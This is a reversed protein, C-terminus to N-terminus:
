RTGGGASEASSILLGPPGDVHPHVIGNVVLRGNGAARQLRELAEGSIPKMRGNDSGLLRFRVQGGAELIPKSDERTLTGQVKLKMGSLRFGAREVTDELADVTAVNNARFTLRVRGEDLLVDVKQVGDVRQLKKEIGFACFPCSMGNVQLEAELIEARSTLPIALLLALFAVVWRVRAMDGSIRKSKTM